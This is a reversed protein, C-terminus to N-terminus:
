QFKIEKGCNILESVLQGKQLIWYNKDCVIILNKKARSVATNILNLGKSIPITSDVFWKDSTDVISLIVTDWERGQSGHVTLIKLDNREQPLSNNILKIQNKYPALIVFDQNGDKKLNHVIKKIELVENMSTRSRLTETKKADIYLIQTEGTPNNSNFNNSYVYKALIKALNNGFRYTSNLSTTSIINSNFQINKLYQIRCLDNTISFLTDLFIASQAWLFVNFFRSEKEIISDNIECVPPLQKHDGLFSIPVSHNFLTLAKIINAYGAEDLFIHEVNLRQETYRGIYGDLTCAIINVSKLREETSSIALKARLSRYHELESRISNSQNNQYETFLYEDVEIKETKQFIIRDIKKRTERTNAVSLTSITENFEIISKAQNKVLNIKQSAVKEVDIINIEILNKKKNIESLEYKTYELDRKINQIKNEIEFIEKEILTSKSTFIKVIKHTISRIKSRKKELQQTQNIINEAFLKIDIDKRKIENNVENLKKKEERILDSLKDLHDFESTLNKLQEIARQENQFNLMRQLINIQRDIEAIKKQIGKEECVEPYAEAFKKSPTGLRIIQKRDIGAKDTMKIIGKLVQEIANNTPALIAITDNKKVYHLVAYALVFQTKGTGPAGWIYSFPSSFINKLSQKQNESPQFNKDSFFELDEFNASYKSVNKPLSLKDGNKEFWIKVREVLFKLDSIVKLDNKHLGEFDSLIKEDPKILLINKDNDYEIIKINSSDYESNNRLNRFFIAETDFLKASLRLKLVTYKGPIYELDYVDVEQIGKNNNELYEYYINSSDLAITRIEEATM